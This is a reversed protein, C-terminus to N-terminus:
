YFLYFINYLENGSLFCIYKPIFIYKNTVSIIVNVNIFYFYKLLVFFSTKFIIWIKPIDDILFPSDLVGNGAHVGGENCSTLKTRM